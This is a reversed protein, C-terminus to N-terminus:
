NGLVATIGRTNPAAKVALKSNSGTIVSDHLPVIKLDAFRDGNFLDMM